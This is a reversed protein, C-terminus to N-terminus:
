LCLRNARAMLVHHVYRGLRRCWAAIMARLRGTM